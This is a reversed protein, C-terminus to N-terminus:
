KGNLIGEKEKELIKIKHEFTNIERKILSEKSKLESLNEKLEAIRIKFISIQKDIEDLKTEKIILSLRDNTMTVTKFSKSKTDIVPYNVGNIIKTKYVKIKDKSIEIVNRQNKITHGIKSNGNIKRSLGLSGKCIDKDYSLELGANEISAIAEKREM